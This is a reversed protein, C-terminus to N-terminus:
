RKRQKATVDPVVRLQKERRKKRQQHLIVALYIGAAAIIGALLAGAIPSRVAQSALAIFYMTASRGVDEAAVLEVRAFENGAYLIRAWGVPEGKAVPAALREPMLEPIPEILVNGANVGDPVYAFIVREPVLQVRDTSRAMDVPIDAVAKDTETVQRMRINEFSWELLAKADVKATNLLWRPQHPLMVNQGRMVICLYSFGGQSAMAVICQGADDTTGTKVGAASAMFYDPFYRNLMRNTNLLNRQGMMNTEPIPHRLSGIIKEFLANGRFGRDLAYRTIAAMDAATSYHGEEDLGHANAFRTDVLGLSQVFANMMDVFAEQSGAIHEALTAAAENASQLMMGYLLQEVTLEEGIRTGMHASNMGHFMSICHAPVAIVENLDEAHELVLIATVIKTLSAPASRMTENQSFIVSSDDLSILLFIESQGSLLPVDKLLHNFAAGAPLLNAVAVMMALCLTLISKQAKKRIGM